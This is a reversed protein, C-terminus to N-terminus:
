LGGLVAHQQSESAALVAVGPLRSCWRVASVSSLLAFCEPNSANELPFPNQTAFVTFTLYTDASTLKGVVRRCVLRAAERCLGVGTLLASM